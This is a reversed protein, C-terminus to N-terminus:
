YNNKSFGQIVGPLSTLVIGAGSVLGLIGWDYELGAIFSMIVVIGGLILGLLSFVKTNMIEGGKQKRM